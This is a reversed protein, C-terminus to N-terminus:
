FRESKKALELTHQELKPIFAKWETTPHAV